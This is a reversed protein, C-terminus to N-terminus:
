AVGTVARVAALTGDVSRQVSYERLVLKQARRGMAKWSARDRVVDALLEALRARDGWPFIEGTQGELVLDPGCGVRDSVIAPVGCAMAENVVLGWTEGFDSPLVLVDAIAYASPIEGQNLFGAFTVPLGHAGVLGELESRLPGDGVVLLHMNELLDKRVLAVAELIHRACKKPQLKGAFLVCTRGEPVSWRQRIEARRAEPLEARERFFDNDVFYPAQFIRESACENRAYFDRNSRGIALMGDFQRLLVRHGIRTLSGRERLASSEGRVLLPLGLQHAAWMAQLQVASEWGTVLVVERM